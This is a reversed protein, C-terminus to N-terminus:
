YAACYKEGGAESEAWRDTLRLAPGDPTEPKGAAPRGNRRCAPLRHRLFGTRPVALPAPAFAFASRQGAFPNPGPFSSSSAKLQKPGFHPTPPTAPIRVPLPNTGPLQMSSLSGGKLHMLFQRFFSFSVFDAPPAVEFGPLQHGVGSAAAAPQFSQSYTTVALEHKHSLHRHTEPRIKTVQLPAPSRLRHILIEM